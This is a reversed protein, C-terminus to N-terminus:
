EPNPPAPKLRHPKPRALVLVWQSFGAGGFAKVCLVFSAHPQCLRIAAMRNRTFENLAPERSRPQDNALKPLEPSRLNSMLKLACLMSRRLKRLVPAPPAAPSKM